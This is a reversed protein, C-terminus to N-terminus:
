SVLFAYLIKTPFRSSILGSPYVLCVQFSLILHIKHLYYLTTHVPNVQSLIPVLPPGKYVRYHVEPNWVIKPFEQTASPSAAERSPSLEM